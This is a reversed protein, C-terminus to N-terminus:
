LASIHDRALGEGLLLQRSFQGRGREAVLVEDGEERQATRAARVTLVDKEVTLDISGPDAGPLDLDVKFQHGRRYADVPAQRVRRGALLEETIREFERFPEFRM